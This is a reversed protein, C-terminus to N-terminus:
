SIGGVNPPGRGPLRRECDAPGRGRAAIVVGERKRTKRKVTFSVLPPNCARELTRGGPDPM